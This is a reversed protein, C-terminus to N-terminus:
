NSPEYLDFFNRGIADGASDGAGTLFAWRQNACLIPWGPSGVDVIASARRVTDVSRLLRSSFTPPPPPPPPSAEATAAADAAPPPLDSSTAAAGEEEGAEGNSVGGSAAAAPLQYKDFYDKELQRVVLEAFNALVRANDASLRRPRLDTCCLSGLRAGTSGILPAGAYFRLGASAM